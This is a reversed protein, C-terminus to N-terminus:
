AYYILYIFYFIFSVIKIFYVYCPMPVASWKIDKSQRTKKAFGDNTESGMKKEIVYNMMINYVLM